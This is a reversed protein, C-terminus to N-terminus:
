NQNMEHNDIKEIFEEVYFWNRNFPEEEHSTEYTQKKWGGSEIDERIAKGDLGGQRGMIKIPSLTEKGDFGLEKLLHRQHLRDEKYYTYITNGPLPKGACNQGSRTPYSVLNNYERLACDLVNLFYDDKPLVKKYKDSIDQWTIVKYAGDDIIEKKLQDPLLLVHYVDEDDINLEKAIYKLIHEKQDSMQNELNKKNPRSYMKAEIVILILREDKSVLLILIDPTEKSGPIDKFRNGRFAESLSYETFFQINTTEENVIVEQYNKVGILDLIHEFCAFNDRCIIMPLVTGTFYREKRNMPIYEQFLADYKIM